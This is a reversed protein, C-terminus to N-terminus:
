EKRRFNRLLISKHPLQKNRNKIKITYETPEKLRCDYSSLISNNNQNKAPNNIQIKTIEKNAKEM